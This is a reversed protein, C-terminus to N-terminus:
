NIRSYKQGMEYNRKIMGLFSSSPFVNQINENHLEKLEGTIEGRM